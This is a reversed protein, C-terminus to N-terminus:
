CTFCANVFVNEDRTYKRLFQKRKRYFKKVNVRLLQRSFGRALLRDTACQARKSFTTFLTCVTFRHLLGSVLGHARRHHINSDVHPFKVIDFDFDDTKDYISLVFQHNNVKIDLDLFEATNSNTNTKVLILEKPYIRSFDFNERVGSNNICCLDDIYRFSNKFSNLLILNEKSKSTALGELFKYELAFLFLNALLPACDAGMPIGVKQRFVKDGVETYLHDILFVIMEVLKDKSVLEGHSSSRARFNAVKDTVKFFPRGTFIAFDFAQEVVWRLESKISDHPIKTYLTTFDFTDVSRANNRANLVRVCELLKSSSDAVWWPNVKHYRKFGTCKGKLPKLLGTLCITLFSSLRKLVCRNSAAIFRQKPPSKHMKATWYMTALRVFEDPIEMGFRDRLM